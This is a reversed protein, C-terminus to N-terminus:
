GVMQATINRLNLKYALPKIESHNDFRTVEDACRGSCAEGDTKLKCSCRVVKLTLEYRIRGNVRRKKTEVHIQQSSSTSYRAYDSALDRDGSKIVRLDDFLSMSFGENDSFCRVMPQIRRLAIFVVEYNSGTKNRIRFSVAEGDMLLLERLLYKVQDNFANPDMFVRAEHLVNKVM